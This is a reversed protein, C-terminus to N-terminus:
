KRLLLFSSWRAPAFSLNEIADEILELVAAILTIQGFVQRGVGGNEPMVFLPARITDKVANQCRQM